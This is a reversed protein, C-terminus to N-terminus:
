FHSFQLFIERFAEAIFSCVNKNNEHTREGENILANEWVVEWAATSLEKSTLVINSPLIVKIYPLTLIVIMKQHNSHHLQVDNEHLQAVKFTTFHGQKSRMTVNHSLTSAM